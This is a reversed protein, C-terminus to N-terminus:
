LEADLPLLSFFEIRVRQWASRAPEMDYDITRGNEETRWLLRRSEGYDQAHDQPPLMLRYSNALQSISEFRAIVQRALEPSDIVLGVQTNILLSRQDFNMSGILLKRRDFVFVKAHLGFRESDV